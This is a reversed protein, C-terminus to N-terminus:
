ILPIQPQSSVRHQKNMGIGHKDIVTTPDAVPGASLDVYSLVAETINLASAAKYDERGWTPMLTLAAGTARKSYQGSEFYQPLRPPLLVQALDTKM